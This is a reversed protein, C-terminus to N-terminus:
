VILLIRSLTKTTTESGAMFFDLCVALLQQHIEKDTFNPPFPNESNEDPRNNNEISLLIKLYVGILDRPEDNINFTKKHNEVLKGIFKHIRNHINVFDTYGSLKPLVFRLYPFHSFPAGMMDNNSFLEHLLLQLTKLEKNEPTYRIEAMIQWLTNLVYLSFFKQMKMLCYQGGQLNIDQLIDNMCFESENEIIEAMRRRAFGFNKLHKTIFRRQVQWFEEDVLVIGRRLGWTRTKYFPGTPRGDMLENTYMENISESRMAMVIQDNGVKLGMVGRKQAEPYSKAILEIGKVLMGTKNRAKTLSLASGIIPYWRPGPPFNDPKKCDLWLFIAFVIIFGIIEYIM